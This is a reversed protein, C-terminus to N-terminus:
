LKYICFYLSTNQVYRHETCVQTRYMVTYMGTNQVDRHETCVYQVYMCTNQAYRHETFVQTCVQTRDMGTYMGTNQVYRHILMTIYYKPIEDVLQRDSFLYFENKLFIKSIM